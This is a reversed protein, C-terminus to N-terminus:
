RGSGAATSTRSTESGVPQSQNSASDPEGNTPSPSGLRARFQEFRKRHEVGAKLDSVALTASLAVLAIGALRYWKPGAVAPVVACGGVIAFWPWYDGAVGLVLGSLVLLILSAILFMRSIRANM